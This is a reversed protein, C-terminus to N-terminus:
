LRYLYISYTALSQTYVCITCVPLLQTCVYVTYVSVTYVSISSVVAIYLCLDYFCCSHVSISQIPVFQTCLYVKFEVEPYACVTYLCLIHFYVHKEWLIKFVQTVVTTGFQYKVAASSLCTRLTTSAWCVWFNQKISLQRKQRTSGRM